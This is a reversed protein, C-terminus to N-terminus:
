SHVVVTPDDAEPFRTADPEVLVLRGLGESSLLLGTRFAEEHVAEIEVQINVTEGAAPSPNDFSLGLLPGNESEYHCNACAQNEGTPRAEIPEALVFSGVAGLLGLGLARGWPHFLILSTASTTHHM